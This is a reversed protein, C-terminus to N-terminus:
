SEWKSRRRYRLNNGWLAGGAIARITSPCNGTVNLLRNNKPGGLFKELLISSEKAEGTL